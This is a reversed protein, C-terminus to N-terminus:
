ASVSAEIGQHALEVSPVEHEASGYASLPFIQDDRCTNPQEARDHLWAHTEKEWAVM